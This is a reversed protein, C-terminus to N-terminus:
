TLMAAIFYKVAAALISLAILVLLVFVCVMLINGNYALPFVVAVELWVIGAVLLLLVIGIVVFLVKM